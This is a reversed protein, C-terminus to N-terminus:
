SLRKMMVSYLWTKTLVVKKWGRSAYPTAPTFVFVVSEESELISKLDPMSNTDATILELPLTILEALEILEENSFTAIDKMSKSDTDSLLVEMPNRIGQLEDVKIKTWYPDVKVEEENESDITMATAGTNDEDDSSDSFNQTNLMFDRDNYPYMLKALEAIKLQKKLCNTLRQIEEEDESFFINDESITFDNFKNNAL